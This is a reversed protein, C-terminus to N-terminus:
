HYVLSQCSSHKTVIKLMKSAHKELHRTIESSGTVNKNKVSKFCSKLKVTITFVGCFSHKIVAFTVILASSHLTNTKYVLYYQM